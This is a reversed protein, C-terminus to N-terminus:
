DILEMNALESLYRKSCTEVLLGNAYVGYNAYYNNNELAFHYITFSGSKDYVTAREDVCAPLRYKKGTIFLDGNARISQQKQEESIFDDVLISHHGTIVLPEFVEPYNEQCCQYLQNGIREPVPNHHITQKCIMHIPLVGDSITKVLHGKRLEQVPIYGQDTLILSGEKFCVLNTNTDSNDITLSWIGTSEAIYMVSNYCTVCKIGSRGTLWKGDSITDGYYDKTALSGNDDTIVKVIFTDYSVYLYTGDTALSTISSYGFGAYGLKQAYFISDVTPGVYRNIISIPNAVNSGVVYTYPAIYVIHRSEFSVSSASNILTTSSDVQKEANAFISNRTATTTGTRYTGNASVYFNGNYFMSYFPTATNGVADTDVIMHYNTQTANLYPTQGINQTGAQNIVVGNPNTGDMGFKFIHLGNRNNDLTSTGTDNQLALVYINSNDSVISQLITSLAFNWKEKGSFQPVNITSTTTVMNKNDIIITHRGRAPRDGVLKRVSTKSYIYFLGTSNVTMSTFNSGSVTSWLTPVDLTYKYFRIKETFYILEIDQNISELVWDGTYMMNGTRNNSAGVTVGAQKIIEYYKIWKPYTLTNCALYDINKVQFEQILSILFTVNQNYMESEDFFM